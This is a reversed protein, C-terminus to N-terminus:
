EGEKLTLYTVGAAFGMAWNGAAELSTFRFSADGTFRFKKRHAAGPTLVCYSADLTYNWGLDEIARLYHRAQILEALNM